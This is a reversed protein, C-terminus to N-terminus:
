GGGKEAGAAKRLIQKGCNPCYLSDPALVPPGIAGFMITLKYTM